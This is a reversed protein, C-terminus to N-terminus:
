LVKCIEGDLSNAVETLVQHPKEAVIHAAITLLQFKHMFYGNTHIEVEGM